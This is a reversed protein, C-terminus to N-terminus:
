LARLVNEGQQTYLHFCYSSYVINDALLSGDGDGHLLHRGHTARREISESLIYVGRLVPCISVFLFMPPHTETDKLSVRM